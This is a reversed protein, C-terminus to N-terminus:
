YEFHLSFMIMRTQIKDFVSSYKNAADHQLIDTLGNSFKIEPSLTFYPFFFNFGVGGEIGFDHNKFGIENGLNTANANSSFIIDYKIGGLLYVRFNDIRDSNFKFHLPFSVIMTPMIRQQSIPDGNSLASDLTYNIYRASGIIVQPNFRIQWHDNLRGTALLGISVGGSNGPLAVLVSDSQLFKPSKTAKLSSSNYGFTAGFYYPVDDHEARFIETQAFSNAAFLFIVILLIIQKRLLYHM